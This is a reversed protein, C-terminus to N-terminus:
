KTLKLKDLVAARDDCEDEILTLTIENNELVFSYRGAFDNCTSQGNIKVLTLVSDKITYSMSELLSNDEAVTVNLTDTVFSFVTEVESDLQLTAKWKTNTLQAQVAVSCCIVLLTLIFKKM